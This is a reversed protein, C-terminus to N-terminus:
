QASFYIDGYWTTAQKGSNDTDTMIAISDISQIDEHFLQKLDHRINRQEHIWRGTKDNGSQQAIMMVNKGAFPSPWTSQLPMSNAWVYNLSRTNWFALGGSVVIYIRAAYDDGSKTRGDLNGLSQSVKWSWHLIPTRTLDISHNYFLGSANSQSDAQLVTINNDKVFRYRTQDKFAKEQWGDLKGASFNGIIIKPEAHCNAALLIPIILSPLLQKFRNM